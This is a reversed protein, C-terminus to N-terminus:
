PRGLSPAHGARAVDQEYRSEEPEGVEAVERVEAVNAVEEGLVPGPEPEVSLHSHDAGLGGGGQRAPRGDEALRHRRGQVFM